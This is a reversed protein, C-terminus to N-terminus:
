KEHDQDYIIQNRKNTENPPNFQYKKTNTVNENNWERKNKM